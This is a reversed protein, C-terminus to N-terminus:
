PGAALREALTRAGHIGSAEGLAARRVPVGEFAAMTTESETAARALDLFLDSQSVGGGLLVVGPDYAYIANALARGLDRACGEVLERAAADGRAAAELVARAGPECAEPESWGAERARRAIATGSAIVEPCGLRGCRCRPGDAIPAHGLEPARGRNGGFIGGAVVLGTGIGTSVTVYLVPDYGVGGGYVSEGLAGLNADNELAVPLALREGLGGVVNLGWWVRSLNPPNLVVGKQPDLPGPCGIGVAALPGDALEGIATALRGLVDGAQPTPFETARPENEGGFISLRTRSGGIDVAAVPAQLLESM